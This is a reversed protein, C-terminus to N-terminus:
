ELTFEVYFAKKDAEIVPKDSNLFTHKVIRYTGKELEGYGCEWNQELELVGNDDVHYAMMDFACFNTTKIPEVWNNNEKSEIRFESGYVNKGKGNTDTIVVTVGKNTLSGDKIKM